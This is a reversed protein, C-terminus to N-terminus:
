PVATIYIISIEYLIWMLIEKGKIPLVILRCQEMWPFHLLIDFTITANNLVNVKMKFIWNSAQLHSGLHERGNACFPAVIDDVFDLILNSFNITMVTNFSNNVPYVALTITKEM